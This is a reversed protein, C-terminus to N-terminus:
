ESSWFKSKRLYQAQRHKSWSYMRTLNSLRDAFKIMIAAQSQLRPFYYGKNDCDGEHTMEHVLSAIRPGFNVEIEQLTTDTDELTDHLYAASIIDEDQTVQMLIRVVQEIHFMYPRGDDDKQDKHRLSAFARAKHILPSNM